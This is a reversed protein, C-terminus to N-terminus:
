LKKGPVSEDNVTVKQNAEALHSSEQRALFRNIYSSVGSALASITASQPSGDSEKAKAKVVDFAQAVTPKGFVYEHNPYMKKVKKLGIQGKIVCKFIDPDVLLPKVLEEKHYPYLQTFGDLDMAGQIAQKFIEPDTLLPKVFEDKYNPFRTALLEFDYFHKFISKFIEPKILISLILKEAHDPFEHSVAVVDNGDQIFKKFITEDTLALELEEKTIM